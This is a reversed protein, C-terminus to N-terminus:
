KLCKLGPLGPAASKHASNGVGLACNLACKTCVVVVVVVVVAKCGRKLVGHACRACVPLVFNM